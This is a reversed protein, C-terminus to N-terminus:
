AFCSALLIKQWGISSSFKEQERNQGVISALCFHIRSFHQVEFPVFVALEVPLLAGMCRLGVHKFPALRKLASPQASVVV